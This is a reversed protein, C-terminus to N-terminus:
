ESESVLAGETIWRRIIEIEEANLPEADEPMEPPEGDHSLLLELLLSQDPQGPIVVPDEARMLTEYRTLNLKGKAKAPQHCGHCSARLIPVIDREFSVQQPEPEQASLNASGLLALIVPVFSM